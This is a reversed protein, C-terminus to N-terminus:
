KLLVMKKTESFDDAQLRYIYTGSPLGSGDFNISYNGASQKENVLEKVLRGNVDYVNLIVYSNITLQYNIITSPNFPNPYNQQLLFKKPIENSNNNIFTEGGNSTLYITASNTLNGGGVFYKRTNALELGNPVKTNDAIFTRNWTTGYDTSKLIVIKDFQMGSNTYRLKNGSIIGLGNPLFKVARLFTTDSISSSISFWSEGRNTTKYMSGGYQANVSPNTNGVVIGTNTNIFSISNFISVDPFIQYTWTNGADTSKLIIGSYSPDTYRSGVSIINLSDILKISTMYWADSPLNMFEWNQGANTTKVIAGIPSLNGISCNAFGYNGNLFDITTFYEISNPTIGQTRWSAGYNTSILFVGRYASGGAFIEKFGVPLPRVITRLANNPVNQKVNGCAYFLNPSIIKSGIITNTSDPIMALNWNSGGNSTYFIRGESSTANFGTSIGILTDLYNISNIAMCNSTNFQSIWQASSTNIQLLFFVLIVLFKVM